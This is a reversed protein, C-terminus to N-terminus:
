GDWTVRTRGIKSQEVHFRRANYTLPRERWEDSEFSTPNAALTGLLAQEVHFVRASAKGKM